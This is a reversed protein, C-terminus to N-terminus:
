DTHREACLSITDRKWYVSCTFPLSPECGSWAEIPFSELGWIKQCVQTRWMLHMQRSLLGWFGRLFSPAETSTHLRLAPRTSVPLGKASEPWSSELSGLSGTEFVLISLSQLLNESFGQPGPTPVQACLLQVLFDTFLCTVFSFSHALFSGVWSNAVACSTSPSCHHTGRRLDTSQQHLTFGHSLECQGSCFALCISGLPSSPNPDVSASAQQTDQVPGKGEQAECCRREAFFWILLATM